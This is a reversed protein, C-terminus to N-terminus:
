LIKLCIPCVQIKFFITAPDVNHDVGLVELKISPDVDFFYGFYDLQKQEHGRKELKWSPNVNKQVM